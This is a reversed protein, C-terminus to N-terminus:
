FLNNIINLFLQTHHMIDLALIGMDMQLIPKLILM